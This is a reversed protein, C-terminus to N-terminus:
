KSFDVSVVKSIGKEEMTVGYLADSVEMTGKRHTIVIFQTDKSFKRLFDAYRLVNADDLAAEIEDLICFPTPKMKLIAFLLAIASLGKEGGSLLNLNQLKKGPPQVAIDITGDLENGETLILDASGGKFLECFTENFFKRLVIFNEKFVQKMKDTMDNILGVLEDKSKNLDDRQSGMFSIKESIEKYEEIAGLNVVGLMSIESKIVAIEEKFDDINQIESKYKLAEAYTLGLEDNLRGYHIEKETEFKGISIELRHLENEKKNLVASINQIEDVNIKIGDKLKIKKINLNNLIEQLSDIALHKEELLIKNKEIKDQCEAISAVSSEVASLIATKRSNVEDLEDSLRNINENLNQIIEDIQAKRIKNKTLKEKKVRLEVEQTEVEKEIATIELNENNKKEQLLSLEKALIEIKSENTNINEKVADMETNSLNLREKLKVIEDELATIKGRVKTIEIKLNHIEEKLHSNNENIAKIKGNYQDTEKSLLEISNANDMMSISLEEIERKRGIVNTSKHYTSGGTISGSPNIVEGLLTVLKYSYSTKKAIRLAADMDSCIVTRGLLYSIASTFKEDYKVLSSAVGIFGQMSSIDDVNNMKKGRIISLPLFTARGIGNVKLYNILSKATEENDTIIDSISGGLAIEFATEHEKSVEIVDGLLFSSQKQVQIKNEAMDQFLIKVAKNYGEHKKDLNILMSKNAELKNQNLNLKKLENEKDSVDSAIKSLNNSNTIIQGELHGIEFNFKSIEEQLKAKTNSNIQISHEFSENTLRSNEVKNIYNKNNNELLSIANKKDSVDQFYNNQNDKLKKLAIAKEAFYNDSEILSNELTKIESGLNNDESINSKLTESYENKSRSISNTKLELEELEKSSRSSYSSLNRLREELLNNESEFNQVVTKDSYIRTSNEELLAEVHELDSYLNQQLLKCENQSFEFKGAESKLLEIKCSITKLNKENADISTVLINLEKIKLKESLEIFKGAKQSDEKLPELREIYTDLIDNIRILNQDTNYLKKEAEEKRFRFKVIGAAEELLGRRDDQKGSLIAEIKGQGIISYGEKGIGTDMFLEQIDKLRCRTNNIFYDSEGSRYLRRSITIDSFDLPLKFDNNDLVLSVQSLGVPKRYQTGSFIVDEMKGGRLTKISQEGLVWRVADSINSKGSGNPGVISTIGNKFVIETKDAFSKFGKIEISKLFM